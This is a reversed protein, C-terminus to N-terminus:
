PIAPIFYAIYDFFSFIKLDWQLHFFNEDKLYVNLADMWRSMIVAMATDATELLVMPPTNAQIQIAWSDHAIIWSDRIMLWSENMSHRRTYPVSISWICCARESMWCIDLFESEQQNSCKPKLFKSRSQSQILKQKKDPCFVEFILVWKVVYSLRVSKGQILLLSETGEIGM